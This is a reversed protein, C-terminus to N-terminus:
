RPLSRIIKRSQSQIALDPHTLGFRLVEKAADYIWFTAWLAKEPYLATMKIIKGIWKDRSPNKAFARKLSIIEGEMNQLTIVQNQWSDNPEFGCAKLGVKLRARDIALVLLRKPLEYRGHRPWNAWPADEDAATGTRLISRALPWASILGAELLAGCAAARIALTRASDSALFAMAAIGPDAQPQWALVCALATADDSTKAAAHLLELNWVQASKAQAILLAAVRQAPASEQRLIRRLAQEQVTTTPTLASLTAMPITELQCLLRIEQAYSPDIEGLAPVPSLLGLLQFFVGYGMRLSYRNRTVM